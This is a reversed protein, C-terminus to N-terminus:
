YTIVTVFLYYISMVRFFLSFLSRMLIFRSGISTPINKLKKSGNAGGGSNASLSKRAQNEHVDRITFLHQKEEEKREWKKLNHEYDEHKSENLVECIIDFDHIAPPGRSYM